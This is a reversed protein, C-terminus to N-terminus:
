SPLLPLYLLSIFPIFPFPLAGLFNFVIDASKATGCPYRARMNDRMPKSADYGEFGPGWVHVAAQPHELFADALDYFVRCGCYSCCSSSAACTTGVTCMVCGWQM